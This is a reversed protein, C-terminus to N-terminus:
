FGDHLAMEAEVLQEWSTDAKKLLGIEQTRKTYNGALKKLEPNLKGERTLWQLYRRKAWGIKKRSQFQVVKNDAAFEKLCIQLVRYFSEFNQNTIQPKDVVLTVARPLDVVLRFHFLPTHLPDTPNVMIVRDTHGMTFTCVTSCRVGNFRIKLVEADDMTGDPFTFTPKHWIHTAENLLKVESTLHKTAWPRSTVTEVIYGRGALSKNLDSATAWRRTSSVSINFNM